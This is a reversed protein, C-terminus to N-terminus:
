EPFSASPYSDRSRCQIAQRLEETSITEWYYTHQKSGRALGFVGGVIGGIAAGGVVRGTSSNGPDTDRTAFAYGGGFMAGAIFGVLGQTLSADKRRYAYRLEGIEDIKLTTWESGGIARFTMSDSTARQFNCALPEAGDGRPLELRASFIDISPAATVLDATMSGRIALAPTLILSNAAEDKPCFSLVLKYPGSTKKLEVREWAGILVRSIGDISRLTDHSVWLLHPPDAFDFFEVRVDYRGNSALASDPRLLRGTLNVRIDANAPLCLVLVLLPSCISAARLSIAPKGTVAARPIMDYSPRM